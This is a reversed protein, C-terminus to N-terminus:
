YEPTAEEGSAPLEITCRVGDAAFALDVSGGLELAAMHGPGVDFQGIGLRATRRLLGPRVYLRDRDTKTARILPRDPARELSKQESETGTGSPLAALSWHVPEDAGRNNKM